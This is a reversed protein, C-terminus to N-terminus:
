SNQDNSVIWYQHIASMDHCRTTAEPVVLLRHGELTVALRDDSCVEGAGQPVDVQAAAQVLAQVLCAVLSFNKIKKQLKHEQIKPAHGHGVTRKTSLAPDTSKVLPVTPNQIVRVEVVVFIKNTLSM